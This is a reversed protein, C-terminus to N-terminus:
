HSGRPKSPELEITGVDVPTESRGGPIEPVVIESLGVRVGAAPRDRDERDWRRTGLAPHHSPNRRCAAQWGGRRFRERPRRVRPIARDPGPLPVPWRGRDVLTAFVVEAAQADRGQFPALLEGDSLGGLAGHHFLAELQAPFPTLADTAM